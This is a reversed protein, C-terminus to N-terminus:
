LTHKWWLHGYLTILHQICSYVVNHLPREWLVSIAGGGFFFHKMRRHVDSAEDTAARLLNLNHSLLVFRSKIGLSRAIIRETATNNDLFLINFCLGRLTWISLTVSCGASISSHPKHRLGHWEMKSQTQAQCTTFPVTWGFSFIWVKGATKM